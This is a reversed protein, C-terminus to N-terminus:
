KFWFQRYGIPKMRTLNLKPALLRWCEGFLVSRSLLNMLARIHLVLLTSVTWKIVYHDHGYQSFYVYTELIM